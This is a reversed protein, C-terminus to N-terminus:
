KRNNQAFIATAKKLIEITMEHDAIKKDKDKLEAELEAIKVKDAPFSIRIKVLHAPKVSFLKIRIDSKIVEIGAPISDSYGPKRLSV